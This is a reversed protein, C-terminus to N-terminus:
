KSSLPTSLSNFEIMRSINLKYLIYGSQVPKEFRVSLM